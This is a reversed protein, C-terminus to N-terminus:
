SEPGASVTLTGTATNLPTTGPISATEMSLYM